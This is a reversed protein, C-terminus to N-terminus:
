MQNRAFRLRSLWASACGVPFSTPIYQDMRTDPDPIGVRDILDRARADAESASIDLHALITETLQDRVTFLPNLSTLPDQFIMSIRKGRLRRMAVDNLGSIEDGHFNITGHTIRGPRELLGLVAAGITSKGAGSEGVLGHIEGPAVTLNANDVARFVRRRTPFEVTLDRIELLSM